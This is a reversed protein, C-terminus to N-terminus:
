LSSQIIQLAEEVNCHEWIRIVKWGNSKLADTDLEDRLANREFKSKWYSVNARPTHGHIPCSHWFCGDVFIAVKKRTFVIDPRCRRGQVRLVYDKRFRYGLRHLGKRIAIEPKTNARKNAKMVSSVAQSSPYPYNLGLRHMSINYNGKSLFDNENLPLLYTGLCTM